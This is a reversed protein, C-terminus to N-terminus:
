FLYFQIGNFIYTKSCFLNSSLLNLTTIILQGGAMRSLCHKLKPTTFATFILLKPSNKTKRSCFDHCFPSVALSKLKVRVTSYYGFYFNM